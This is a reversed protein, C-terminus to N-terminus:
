AKSCQMQSIRQILVLHTLNKLEETWSRLLLDSFKESFNESIKMASGHKSGLAAPNSTRVSGRHKAAGMIKLQLIHGYVSRGNAESAKSNGSSPSFM